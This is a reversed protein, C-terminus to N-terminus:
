TSGIAPGRQQPASPLDDDDLNYQMRACKSGGVVLGPPHTGFGWSGAQTWRCFFTGPGAELARVQRSGDQGDGAGPGQGGSLCGGPAQADAVVHPRRRQRQRTQHGCTLLLLCRNISLPCHLRRRLTSHQQSLTGPQAAAFTATSYLCYCHLSSKPANPLHPTWGERRWEARRKWAHVHPQRAELVLDM